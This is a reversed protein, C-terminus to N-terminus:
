QKLEREVLRRYKGDSTVSLLKAWISKAENVKSMNKHATGLDYLIKWYFEQQFLAPDQEFRSALYTLDDVAVRNRHFYQEPLRLCVQSRLIRSQIHDPHTKVVEDLVKLGQLAKSFQENPDKKDRALLCTASGYYSQVLPDSSSSHLDSLIQHARIVASKDGKVGADHLEIAESLPDKHEQKEDISSPPTLGRPVQNPIFAWSSRPQFSTHRHKRSM